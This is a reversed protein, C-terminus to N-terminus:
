KDSTSEGVFLQLIGLVIPEVVVVSDCPITAASARAIRTEAHRLGLM